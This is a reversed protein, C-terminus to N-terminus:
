KRPVVVAECAGVSSASWWVADSDHSAREQAADREGLALEVCPVAEEDSHGCVADQEAEVRFVFRGAGACVVAEYAKESAVGV